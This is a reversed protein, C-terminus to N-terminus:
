LGFKWLVYDLLKNSQLHDSPWAFISINEPLNNTIGVWTDLRGTGGGLRAKSASLSSSTGWRGGWCSSALHSMADWTYWVLCCTKITWFGTCIWFIIQLVINIMCLFLKSFRLGPPLLSSNIKNEVPVGWLHQSFIIRSSESAKIHRPARHPDNRIPVKINFTFNHNQNNNM